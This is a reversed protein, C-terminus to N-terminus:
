AYSQMVRLSSERGASRESRYQSWKYLMKARANQYANWIYINRSIVLGSGRITHTHQLGCSGLSSSQCM